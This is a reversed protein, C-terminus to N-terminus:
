ENICSIILLQEFPSSSVILGYVPQERHEVRVLKGTM